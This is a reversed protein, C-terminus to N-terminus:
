HSDVHIEPSFVLKIVSVGLQKWYEYDENTVVSGKTFTQVPTKKFNNMKFNRRSFVIACTPLSLQLGRESRLYVFNPPFHLFKKIMM